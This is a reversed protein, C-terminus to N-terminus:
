RKALWRTLLLVLAFIVTGGGIVASGTLLAEVPTLQPAIDFM